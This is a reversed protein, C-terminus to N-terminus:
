EHIGRKKREAPIPSGSRKRAIAKSNTDTSDMEGSEADSKSVTTIIDDRFMGTRRKYFLLYAASTVL